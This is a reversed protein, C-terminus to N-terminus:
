VGELTPGVDNGAKGLTNKTRKWSVSDGRFAIGMTYPLQGWRLVDGFLHTAEANNVYSTALLEEHTEAAIKMVTAVLNRGIREKRYERDVGLGTLSVGGWTTYELQALGKIKGDERWVFTRYHGVRAREIVEEPLLSHFISREFPDGKSEDYMTMGVIRLLQELDDASVTDSHLGTIEKIRIDIDADRYPATRALWNNEVVIFGYGTLRRHMEDSECLLMINDTGTHDMLLQFSIPTFVGKKIEQMHHCVLTTDGPTGTVAFYGVNELPTAYAFVRVTGDKLFRNLQKAAESNPELAERMKRARESGWLVRVISYM